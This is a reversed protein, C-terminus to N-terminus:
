LRPALARCVQVILAINPAKSKRLPTQVCIIVADCGALAASDATFVLKRALRKLKAGPVDEVYSVGRKLARLRAPNAEVGTVRFGAEAFAAALPLGVYGMGAIGIRATKERIKRELAVPGTYDM